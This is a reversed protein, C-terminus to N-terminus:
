AVVREGGPDAARLLEALADHLGSAIAQPDPVLDPCTLTGVCLADVYSWATVNVAAGEILPGVSYIAEITGGPWSLTTRPGPVSSVIVNVPPRHRDVLHLRAYLQMWWSTLKPPAYQMWAEFM